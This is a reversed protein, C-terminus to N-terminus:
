NGSAKAHQAGLRRTVRWCMSRTSSREFGRRSMPLPTDHLTTSFAISITAWRPSIRARRVKRGSLRKELFARMECWPITKGSAVIVAYRQEAVENFEGRREELETKEAIAELIFSHATTNAREAAAAVRAKLDDPLRITTTPM